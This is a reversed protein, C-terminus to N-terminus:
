PKQIKTSFSSPHLRKLFNTDKLFYHVGYIPLMIDICKFANKPDNEQSTYKPKLKSILQTKRVIQM